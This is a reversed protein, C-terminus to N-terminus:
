TSPVADSGVGVGKTEELLEMKEDANTRIRFEVRRSKRYDEQGNEIIRQSFSLGNATLKQVLWAQESKASPLMLVYELVSRTRSQSLEM